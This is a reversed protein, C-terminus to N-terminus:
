AVAVAAKTDVTITITRDAEQPVPNDRGGSRIKLWTVPEWMPDLRSSTGAVANFQIERADTGFLDNYNTGDPSVQFSIRASTWDTPMHLFVPAGATCDIAASLSQGASITATKTVFRAAM